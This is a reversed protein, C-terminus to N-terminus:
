YHGRMLARVVDLENYKPKDKIKMKRKEKKRQREAKDRCEYTCYEKANWMYDTHRSRREYPQNCVVCIKSAKEESM